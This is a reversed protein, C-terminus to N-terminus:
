EVPVAPPFLFCRGPFIAFESIRDLDRSLAEKVAMVKRHQAAVEHVQSTGAMRSRLAVHAEKLEVAGQRDRAAALHAYSTSNRFWQLVWGSGSPVEDYNYSARPLNCAAEVAELVVAKVLFLTVGPVGQRVEEEPRWSRGQTEPQREVWACLHSLERALERVEAKWAELHDWAADNPLHKRLAVLLTEREPKLDVALGEATGILHLAPNYDGYRWPFGLLQALPIYLQDRLAKATDRLAPWHGSREAQGLDEDEVGGSHARPVNRKVGKRVLISGVTSRHIAVHFRTFVEKAIRQQSWGPYDRAWQCVRDEIEPGVKEGQKM